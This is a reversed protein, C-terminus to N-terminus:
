VYLDVTERLLKLCKKTTDSEKIVNLVHFAIKKFVPISEKDLNYKTLVIYRDYKFYIDDFAWDLKLTINRNKDNLYYVNTAYIGPSIYIESM